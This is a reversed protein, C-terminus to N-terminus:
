GTCGATFAALDNVIGAMKEIRKAQQNVGHREALWRPDNYGVMTRGGELWIALRLPLDIGISPRDQMLATGIMPNGFVVVLLPPLELGAERAGAAHDIRAM